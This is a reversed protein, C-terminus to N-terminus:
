HTFNLRYLNRQPEDSPCCMEKGVALHNLESVAIVPGRDLLPTGTSFIIRSSDHLRLGLALGSGLRVRVRVM